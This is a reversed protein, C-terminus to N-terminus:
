ARTESIEGRGDKNRESKTSAQRSILVSGNRTTRMSTKRAVDVRQQIYCNGEIIVPARAKFRRRQGRQRREEKKARRRKTRFSVKMASTFDQVANPDSSLILATAPLNLPSCLHNPNLDRLTSQPAVRLWYPNIRGRGPGEGVVCTLAWLSRM